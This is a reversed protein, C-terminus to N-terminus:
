SRLIAIARNVSDEDIEPLQAKIREKLIADPLAKAAKIAAKPQSVIFSRIEEDSLSFPKKEETATQIPTQIGSLNVGGLLKLLLTDELSLGEKIEEAPEEEANYEELIEQLDYLEAKAKAIEIEQKVKRLEANVKRKQVAQERDLDSFDYNHRNDKKKREIVFGLFRM